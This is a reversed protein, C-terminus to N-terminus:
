ASSDDEFYPIREAGFEQRADDLRARSGGWISAVATRELVGIGFDGFAQVPQRAITTM